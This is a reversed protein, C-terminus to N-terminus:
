KDLQIIMGEKSKKLILDYKEAKEILENTIQDRMKRFNIVAVGSYGFDLIELENAVKIIENWGRLKNDINM